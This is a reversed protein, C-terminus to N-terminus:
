NSLYGWKKFRDRLEFDDKFAKFYIYEPALDAGNAWVLTDLERDVVFRRFEVQDKLGEFVPGQLTDRLDVIGKRGDNFSVEIRYGDLYKAEVVQVLM